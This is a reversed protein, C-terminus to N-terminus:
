VRLGESGIEAGVKVGMTMQRGAGIDGDDEPDEVGVNM